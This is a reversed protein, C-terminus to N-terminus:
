SYKKSQGFINELAKMAAFGASKGRNEAAVIVSKKWETGRGRKGSRKGGIYTDDLEILHEFLRYISDRNVMAIRKKKLMRRATPCSVGIQKSLVPWLYRKKWIGRPLNGLVM